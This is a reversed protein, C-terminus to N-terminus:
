VVIEEAGPLRGRTYLIVHNGELLMLDGRV